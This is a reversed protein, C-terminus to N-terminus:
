TPVPPTPETTSTEASNDVTVNRLRLDRLSSVRFPKGSPSIKVLVRGDSTWVAALKNNRQLQRAERFLEANEKTLHDNLWIPQNPFSPHLEIATLTRRERRAQLWLGKVFRSVFCVVINPPRAADGRPAPLRHAASIDARSYNVNLLRAITDLILFINENNTAPIGSIIINNKRTQQQLDAVHDKLFSVERSLRVNEERIEGVESVTGDVVVKLSEYQNKLIGVDTVLKNVDGQLASLKTDSRDWRDNNEDRFAAIAELVSVASESGTRSVSSGSEMFCGECKWNRRTNSKKDGINGVCQPHFVGYCETCKWHEKLNTIQLDCKKCQDSM